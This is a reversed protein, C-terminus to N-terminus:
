EATMLERLFYKFTELVMIKDSQLNGLVVDGLNLTNGKREIYKNITIKTLETSVAWLRAIKEQKFDELGSKEPHFKLVHVNWEDDKIETDCYPCEM